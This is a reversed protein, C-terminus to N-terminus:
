FLLHQSNSEIIKSQSILKGNDNFLLEYNDNHRDRKGSVVIEYNTVYKLQPKEGKILAMLEDEGAIWQRQVKSIKFRTFESKLASEISARLPASVSEYDILVEVDQITGDANFEVSHLKGGHIVKAEISKGKASQEMYWKVKQQKFSNKIFDLAPAPVASPKIKYEREIKDQASSVHFSAILFTFLIFFKM